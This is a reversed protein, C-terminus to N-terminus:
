SSASWVLRLSEGLLRPLDRWTGESGEPHQIEWWTRPRRKQDGDEPANTRRKGDGREFFVTDGM